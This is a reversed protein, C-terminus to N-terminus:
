FWIRVGAILNNIQTRDIDLYEYGAYPEVGFLVAGVTTRFRFLEARGLTGWDLTASAVWPECPFVDVGYTFNFGYDTDVPDDIWNMGMGIRWQMHPSQAFRFILNCDGLWLEDVTANPLNERFNHMETDLGFRSTTSVLLHGGIRSLDGFNEAYEASFRGAWRRRPGGYVLPPPEVSGNPYAEGLPDRDYPDAYYSEDVLWAPGAMYGRVGCYPHRPFYGPVYYDDGLMVPPGWFPSTLARFIMGMGVEDTVVHMGWGEDDHDHHHHDGRNGRRKSSGSSESSSASRVGGAVAALVGLGSKKEDDDDSDSKEVGSTDERLTDLLGASVGSPAGLLVLWAAALGTALRRYTRGRRRDAM